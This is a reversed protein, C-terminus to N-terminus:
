GAKCDERRRFFGGELNMDKVKIKNENQLTSLKGLAKWMLIPTSRLDPAHLIIKWHDTVSSM